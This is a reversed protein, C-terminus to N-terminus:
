EELTPTDTSGDDYDLAGAAQQLAEVHPLTYRATTAINPDGNKKLHGMLRAVTPLPIGEDKVPRSGYTHRLTHYTLDPWDLQHGWETIIRQIGRVSLAGGKQSVLVTRDAAVWGAATAREKWALLHKRALNGLPISRIQDFKGQLHQIEAAGKRLLLQGWVLSAAEEVRLGAYLGLVLIARNRIAQTLKEDSIRKLHFANEVAQNLGRMLEREQARTLSKPAQPAIVLLELHRAVDQPVRGSESAWRSFVRLGAIHKNRTAPAPRHQQGCIGVPDEDARWRHLDKADLVDVTFPRQHHWAFWEAYSVVPRRCGVASAQRFHPVKIMSATYCGEDSDAGRGASLHGPAGADMGRPEPSRDSPHGRTGRARDAQAKDRGSVEGLDHHTPRTIM